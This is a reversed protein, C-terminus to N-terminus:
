ISFRVRPDVTSLTTATTGGIGHGIVTYSSTDFTTNFQLSPFQRNLLAINNLEQLVFNIGQIRTDITKTVTENWSKLDTFPELSALGNITADHPHDIIAVAM